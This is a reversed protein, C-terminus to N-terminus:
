NGFRIRANKGRSPRIQWTKRERKKRSAARAQSQGGLRLRLLSFSRDGIPYEDSSALVKPDELFGDELRTDLVLEWRVEEQGPLVFSMPEHHASLLM